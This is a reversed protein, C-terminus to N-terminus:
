DVGIIPLRTSVFTGPIPGAVPVGDPELYDLIGNAPSFDQDILFIETSITGVSSGFSRDEDDDDDDDDNERAYFDEVLTVRADPEVQLLDKAVVRGM